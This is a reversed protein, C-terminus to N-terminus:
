AAFAGQSELSLGCLHFLLGSRFRSLDVTEAVATMGNTCVMNIRRIRHTGVTSFRGTCVAERGLKVCFDGFSAGPQVWAHGEIKRGQDSVGAVDISVFGRREDEALAPAALFSVLLLFYRMGLFILYGGDFNLPTCGPCDRKM